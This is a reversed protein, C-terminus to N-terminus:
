EATPPAEDFEEEGSNVGRKNLDRWSKGERAKPDLQYSTVATSHDKYTKSFVHTGDNKSVFYLYDTEAPRVAAKLAEIGPNSIPGPPLGGRKYTNYPHDTQLDGRSISLRYQGTRLFRAYIVTPDTQLRMKKKLRNHFVSSIQPREFGAGTEKEIISGLTVIQHRTWGPRSGVRKFKDLFRGVMRRIIVRCGDVKTFFYTDPFLYGELSAQEEGLLTQIFKASTTLNIFDEKKCLALQDLRRAVEYLNTGEPVVLRHGLSKGSMLIEFLGQMKVGVPIGYEGSKMKKDHGMIRAWMLFVDASAIVEKQVLQEATERLSDKDSVTVIRYSSLPLPTNYYTNVQWAGIAVLISVALLSWKIIKM